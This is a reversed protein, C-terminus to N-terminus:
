PKIEKEAAILADAMAWAVAAMQKEPDGGRIQVSPNGAIAAMLLGAYHQRLTMAPPTLPVAFTQPNPVGYGGGYGDDVATM